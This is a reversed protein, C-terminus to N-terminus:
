AQLGWKRVERWRPATRKLESALTQSQPLALPVPTSTSTQLSATLPLINEKPDGISYTSISVSYVPLILGSGVHVCSPVIKPSSPPLATTSGMTSFTLNRQNKRGRKEKKRERKRGEREKKSGDCAPRFRTGDV